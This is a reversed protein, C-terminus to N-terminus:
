DGRLALLIGSRELQVQAPPAGPPNVEPEKEAGIQRFQYILATCAHGWKWPSEGLSSPLAGSRMRAPPRIGRQAM